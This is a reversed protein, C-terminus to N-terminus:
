VHFVTFAGKYSMFSYPLGQDTIVKDLLKMYLRATHPNPVQFYFLRIDNFLVLYTIHEVMHKFKHVKHIKLHQGHDLEVLM